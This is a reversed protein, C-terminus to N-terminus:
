PSYNTIEAHVVGAAKFADWTLNVIQDTKAFEALKLALGLVVADQGFVPLPCYDEDDAWTSGYSLTKGYLRLTGAKNPAPVLQYTTPSLVVLYVPQGPSDFEQGARVSQWAYDDLVRLPITKGEIVLEAADLRRLDPACYTAGGITLAKNYIAPKTDWSRSLENVVMDLRQDQLFPDDGRGGAACGSLAFAEQRIQARTKGHGVIAVPVSDPEFGAPYLPM